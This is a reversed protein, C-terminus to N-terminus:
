STSSDCENGGHGYLLLMSFCSVEVMKKLVTVAELDTRQKHIM